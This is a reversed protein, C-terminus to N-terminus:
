IAEIEQRAEEPTMDELQKLWHLVIEEHSILDDEEPDYAGFGFNMKRM